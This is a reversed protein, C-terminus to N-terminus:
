FGEWAQQKVVLYTHVQDLKRECTHNWGHLSTVLCKTMQSGMPISLLLGGMWKKSAGFRSQLSRSFCHSVNAHVSWFPCKKQIRKAGLARHRGCADSELLRDGPKQLNQGSWIGEVVRLLIQLVFETFAREGVSFLKKNQKTKKSFLKQYCM